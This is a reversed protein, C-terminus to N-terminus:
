KRRPVEADMDAILEYALDIDTETEATRGSDLGLDLREIIAALAKAAASRM